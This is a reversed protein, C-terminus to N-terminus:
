PGVYERAVRAGVRAVLEYSITEAAAAVDETSLAPGWMVAVDGTRVPGVASVDVMVHDMCVRGVVPAAGGPFMVTGRNSLARPYGDAYGCRLTAVKAPASTRYSHGYGIGEHAAVDAVRVVPAELTMVRRLSAHGRLGADPYLGYLMLGPRVMELHADTRTMIAASNALHRALPEGATAATRSAVILRELQGATVDTTVSEAMAFHSCLAVARVGRTGAIVSLFERVDEPAVGLRHMGTDVKVHIAVDRGAAVAARGLARVVDAEHTVVEVGLEVAREADAPLMGGFVAVRARSPLGARQFLESAEDLTAVGFIRCGAGALARTVEIAGHGYANAKVMALVDVARGVLRGAEHFNHVLASLDIRAVPGAPPTV